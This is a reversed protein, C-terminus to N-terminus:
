KFFLFYVLAAILGLCVSTVVLIGVVTGTTLDFLSSKKVKLEFIGSRNSTGINFIECQYKGANEKKIPDITLKKGDESLFINKAAKIYQGNFIWKISIDTENTNCTIVVKNEKDRDMPDSVQISPQQLLSYVQLDGSASVNTLDAKVTVVTYTGSDRKQVSQIILSGNPKITERGTNAPGPTFSNNLIQYVDIAAARDVRNGRFWGYGLVLGEKGLINFVVISGEAALPPVTDVTLRATTPPPWFSLLAVALLLRNWPVHRRSAPGSPPEMPGATHQGRERHPSSGTWFRECPRCDSHSSQQGEREARPRGCHM